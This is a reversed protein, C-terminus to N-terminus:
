TARNKGDRPRPAPPPAAGPDGPTGRDSGPGSRPQTRAGRAWWGGGRVVQGERAARRPPLALPLPTRRSCRRPDPSAAPTPSGQAVSSWLRPLASPRLTVCPIPFKTRPRPRSPMQDTAGEPTLPGRSARKMTCSSSQPTPPGPRPPGRAHAQAPREGRVAVWARGLDTPTPTPHPPTPRFFDM